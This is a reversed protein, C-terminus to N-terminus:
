LNDSMEGAAAAQEAAEEAQYQEIASQEADEVSNSPASSCGTLVVAFLALCVTMLLNKMEADLKITM